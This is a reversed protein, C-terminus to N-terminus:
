HERAKIMAVANKFVEDQTQLTKIIIEETPGPYAYKIESNSIWVYDVPFFPGAIRNGVRVYRLSCTPDFVNLGCDKMYIFAFNKGDQSLSFKDVAMYSGIKKGNFYVQSTIAPQDIWAISTGDESMFIDTLGFFPGWYNGSSTHIYTSECKLKNFLKSSTCAEHTLFYFGRSGFKPPTIEEFPGFVSQDVKLFLGRPTRYVYGLRQGSQSFSFKEVSDFPGLVKGVINIFYQGHQKFVWGVQGSKECIFISRAEEYPGFKTENVQVWFEDSHSNPKFVFAVVSQVKDVTFDRIYSYPGFVRRDLIVYNTNCLAEQLLGGCNWALHTAVRGRFMANILYGRNLGLLEPRGNGGMLLRSLIEANPFLKLIQKRHATTPILKAQGWPLGLIDGWDEELVGNVLMWPRDKKFVRFAYEKNDESFGYFLVHKFPGYMIGGDEIYSGLKSDIEKLVKSGDPYLILNALDKSTSSKKQQRKLGLNEGAFRKDHYDQSLITPTVLPVIFSVLIRLVACWLLKV